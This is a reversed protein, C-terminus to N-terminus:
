LVSGHGTFVGQGLLDGGSATDEKERDHGQFDHDHDTGEGKEKIRHEARDEVEQPLMGGGTPGGQEKQRM